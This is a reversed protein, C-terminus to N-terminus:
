SRHHNWVRDAVTQLPDLVKDKMAQSPDHSQRDRGTPNLSHIWLAPAYLCTNQGRKMKVVLDLQDM